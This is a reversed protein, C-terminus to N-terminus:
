EADDEVSQRRLSAAAAGLRQTERGAIKGLENMASSNRQADIKPGSGGTFRVGICSQDTRREFQCRLHLRTRLPSLTHSWPADRVGRMRAYASPFTLGGGGAAYRM